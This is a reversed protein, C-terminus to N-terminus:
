SAMRAWSKLLRLCVDISPLTVGTLSVILGLDITIDLGWAWEPEGNGVLPRIWDLLTHSKLLVVM